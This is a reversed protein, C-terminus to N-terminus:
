RVYLIKAPIGAVVDYPNTSKLVVANAGVVTGKALRVGPLIVAGAGIWVDDEIIIKKLATQQVIIPKLRSKIPHAGSSITVNPGILVFNGIEIEGVGNLYSFSNIAVSHGFKIRDSHIITVNCQIWCFGECRLSFLRLALFRLIIGFFTPIISFFGFFLSEFELFFLDSLTYRNKIKNNILKLFNM